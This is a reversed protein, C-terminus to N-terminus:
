KARSISKKKRVEERMIVQVESATKKKWSVEEM